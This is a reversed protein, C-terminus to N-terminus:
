DANFIRNFSSGFPDFTQVNRVLEVFVVRLVRDFTVSSRLVRADLRTSDNATLGYGVSYRRLSFSLLLFIKGQDCRPIRVLAGEEKRLEIGVFYRAEFSFAQYM